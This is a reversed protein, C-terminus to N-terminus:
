RDILVTTPLTTSVTTPSALPAEIPRSPGVTCIPADAIIWAARSPPMTCARPSIRAPDAAPIAAANLVGSAPITNAM